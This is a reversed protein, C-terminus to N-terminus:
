DDEFIRWALPGLHEQLDVGLDDAARRLRVGYEPWGDGLMVHPAHHAAWMYADLRDAFRLWRKDEDSLHPDDGWVLLRHDKEAYHLATAIDSRQRKFEASVDGTLEEGDDHSLAARLLEVSPAPHLMAIIRAVRGSHGDIRDAIHALDPNSHWRRIFGARFAAHLTM